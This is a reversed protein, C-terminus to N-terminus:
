VGACRHVCLFVVKAEKVAAAILQPTVEYPAPAQALAPEIGILTSLLLGVILIKKFMTEGHNVGPLIERAPSALLRGPRLDFRISRDHCSARIRHM